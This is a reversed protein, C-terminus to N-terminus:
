VCIVKIFYYAASVGKCDSDRTSILVREAEWDVGERERERIALM